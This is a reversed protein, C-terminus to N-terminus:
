PAPEVEGNLPFPRYRVTLAADTIDGTGDTTVGVAILGGEGKQGLAFTPAASTVVSGAVPTLGTIAPPYDAAEPYWTAATLDSSLDDTIAVWDGADAEVVLVGIARNSADPAPVAALALAESAYAQPSGVVKTTIVGTTKHQQYLIAGFGLATVTHAASFALGAATGAYSSVVGSAVSPFASIATNEPTTGEGFVPALLIGDASPPLAWVKFSITAAVVRAWVQCALLMFASTPGLVAIIRDTLSVAVAADLAVPIEKVAVESSPLLKADRVGM